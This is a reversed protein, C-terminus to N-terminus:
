LPKHIQTTFPQTAGDSFKSDMTVTLISQSQNYSLSSSKLVLNKVLPHFVTPSTKIVLVIKGTEGTDKELLISRNETGYDYNIGNTVDIINTATQLELIIRTMAMQINQIQEYNSDASVHSKVSNTFMALPISVLAGILVLVCVVEVLTFAACNNSKIKSQLSM